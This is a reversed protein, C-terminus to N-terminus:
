EADVCDGDLAAKVCAAAADAPKNDAVAAVAKVSRYIRCQLTDKLPANKAVYVFTSGEAAVRKDGGRAGKTSYGDVCAAMCQADDDNFESTFAAGCGKKYLLCYSECNESSILAGDDGEVDAGCIGEGSPGAHACHPARGNSALNAHYFHCARTNKDRDAIDGAPFAECAAICEDHSDYVASNTAIDDTEPCNGELRDCIRDCDPLETDFCHLTSIYAGHGCHTSPISIAATLHYIRCQLTAVDNLAAFQLTENGEDILGSCSELCNPVAKAEADCVDNLLYCYAECNTGCTGNGAPGASPCFEAQDAHASEAQALRCRITNKRDEADDGEPLTNCSDICFERARYQSLDGTCNQGIADCYRVCLDTTVKKTVSDTVQGPGLAGGVGSQSGTGNGGGTGPDGGGGDELPREKLDLLQACGGVSLSLMVSGAILGHTWKM